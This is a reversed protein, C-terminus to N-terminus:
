VNIILKDIEEEKLNHAFLDLKNRRKWKLTRLLIKRVVEDMETIASELEDRRVQGLGHVIKNRFNYATVIAQYIKHRQDSRKPYLLHSSRLAVKYKVDFPSKNFLGELSVILDVLREAPSNFHQYSINFRDIAISDILKEIWNLSKLFREFDNVSSLTYQNKLIPFSDSDIPIMEGRYDSQQMGSLFRGLVDGTQYLRLATILVKIKRDAENFKFDHPFNINTQIIFHPFDRNPRAHYLSLLSILFNIDKPDLKSNPLQQFLHQANFRNFRRLLYEGIQFSDGETPINFNWLSGYIVYKM